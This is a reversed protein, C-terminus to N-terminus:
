KSRRIRPCVWLGSDNYLYLFQPVFLHLACLGCSTLLLGSSRKRKLVLAGRQLAYGRITVKGGLSPIHLYGSTM